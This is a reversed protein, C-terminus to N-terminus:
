KAVRRLIKYPQTGWLKTSKGENSTKFEPEFLQILPKGDLLVRQSKGCHQLSLRHFIEEINRASKKMALTVASMLAGHKKSALNLSISKTLAPLNITAV